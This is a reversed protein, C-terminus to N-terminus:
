ACWLKLQYPVRSAKTKAGSERAVLAWRFPKPKPGDVAFNVTTKLIVHIFYISYDLSNNSSFNVTTELIVYSATKRTTLYSIFGVIVRIGSSITM